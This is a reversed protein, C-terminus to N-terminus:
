PIPLAPPQQAPAPAPAKGTRAAVISDAKVKVEIAQRKDLDEAYQQVLAPMRAGVLSDIRADITAQAVQQSSQGCAAAALPLLLLLRKAKLLM